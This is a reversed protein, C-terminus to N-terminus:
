KRSLRPGPAVYQVDRKARRLSDTSTQYTPDSVEGSKLLRHPISTIRRGNLLRAPTLAEEDKIDSSVYTLLRDNLIAEVEVVNTQLTCLKVAARDLIKKM